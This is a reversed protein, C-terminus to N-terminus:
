SVALRLLQRVLEIVASSAGQPPIDGHHTLPQRYTDNLRQFETVLDDRPGAGHLLTFVAIRSAFPYTKHNSAKWREHIARAAERHRDEVQETWAGGECRATAVFPNILTELAGWAFVFAELNSSSAALADSLLRCPTSVKPMKALAAMREETARRDDATMMRGVMLRADGMSISVSQVELGDATRLAVNELVFAVDPTQNDLIAAAAVALRVTGKHKGAIEKKDVADMLVITGDFTTIAKTPVTTAEGTAEVVMYVGQGFKGKREKSINAAEEDLSPLAGRMFIYKLALSKRATERDVATLIDDPDTTFLVRTNAAGTAILEPKSEPLASLGLIRHVSTYRYTVLTAPFEIQQNAPAEYGSMSNEVRPHSM